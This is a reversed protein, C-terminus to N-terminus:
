KAPARLFLHLDVGLSCITRGVLNKNPPLMFSGKFKFLIFSSSFSIVGYEEGTGVGACLFSSILETGYVKRKRLRFGNKQLSISLPSHNMDKRAGKRRRTAKLELKTM